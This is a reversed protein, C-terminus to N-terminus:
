LLVCGGKKRALRGNTKMEQKVAKVLEKAAIKEKGEPVGCRRLIAFREQEPVDPDSAKLIEAGDVRNTFAVEAKCDPFFVYLFL